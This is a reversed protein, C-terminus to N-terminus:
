IRSSWLVEERGTNNWVSTGQPIRRYSRVYLSYGPKVSVFSLAAAIAAILKDDSVGSKNNGM